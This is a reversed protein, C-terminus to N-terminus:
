FIIVVLFFLVNQTQRLCLCYIECRANLSVDYQQNKHATRSALVFVAVTTSVSVPWSYQSQFHLSDAAINAAFNHIIIIIIMM